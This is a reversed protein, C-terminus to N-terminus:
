LIIHSEESNFNAIGTKCPSTKMGQGLVWVSPGTRWIQSSIGRLCSSGTIGAPVPWCQVEACGSGKSLIIVV